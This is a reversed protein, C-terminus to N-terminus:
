KGKLYEYLANAFLNPNIMEIVDTAELYDDFTISWFNDWWEQSKAWNWLKVFGDPTSFNYKDNAAETEQMWFEANCKDCFRSHKFTHWCEGMLETLLKDREINMLKGKREFLRNSQDQTLQWENCLRKVESEAVAIRNSMRCNEEYWDENEKKLREVEAELEKIEEYDCEPCHTYEAFDVGHKCESM